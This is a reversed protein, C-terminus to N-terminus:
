AFAFQALRRERRIMEVAKREEERQEFAAVDTRTENCYRALTALADNADHENRFM